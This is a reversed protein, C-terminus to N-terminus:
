VSPRRFSVHPSAGPIFDDLAELWQDPQELHLDHGADAVTILRASTQVRYLPPESLM